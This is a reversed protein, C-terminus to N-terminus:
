DLEWIFGYLLVVVAGLSAFLRVLSLDVSTIVMLDLVVLLNNVALLGFCIASWLLLRTQSRVYRRALLWACAASSALCLLYVTPALYSM